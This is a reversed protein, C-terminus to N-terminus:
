VVTLKLPACKALKINFPKVLLTSESKFSAAAFHPLAKDAPYEVALM